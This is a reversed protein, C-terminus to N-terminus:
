EIEGRYCVPSAYHVRHDDQQHPAAAFAKGRV